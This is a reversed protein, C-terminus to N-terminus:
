LGGLFCDVIHDNVLGVAQMYSYVITSGLFQFGRKKLDKSIEDSLKTNAPVDKIDKWHNHIPRNNVFSWIYRDFSGFENVIELFRRANNVSAEIKRRNRIIGPNKMLEEIKEHDFLAVKEPDFGCYAKRYNERKKLITIWSLGAQASELVLFEFHKRDDHNPVGWEEDHYKIYLEDNGCWPCRVM